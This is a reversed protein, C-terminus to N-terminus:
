CVEGPFLERIIRLRQVQKLEQMIHSRQDPSVHYLDMVVSELEFDLETDVPPAEKLLRRVRQVIGEHLERQRGDEFDIEKIPLRQIIRQTVYPFSQWEVIGMKKVLYYLMLRSNLVGLMYELDLEKWREPRDARLKWAYVVQPFYTVASDITAYIGLSTKRVLLKKGEYFSAPKYNIGERSTDIVKDKNLYYRNVDSGIVFPRGTETRRNKSVITARQAAEEVEYEHGCHACQKSAYGGGKKQRPLSDWKFCSPCQMVDGAGTLEVGRGTETVQDWLLCDTEWSQIMEMEDQRLYIDFEHHRNEEFRRQPVHHMREQEFGTIGESTTRQALKRRDEKRLTMCRVTHRPGPKENKFILIASAAFVSEFLGEGCRILTDLSFNTVLFERLGDHEPLFISAPVIFGWTGGPKLLKKALELFLEYSDYQGQALTYFGCNELFPKPFLYDSGWPPNGAVVDFGGEKLIGPFGEEWDFPEYEEWGDGILESLDEQRGFVLSNGQRVNEGLILPLKEGRRLVKLACNVGAIETAQPDVDVGYLNQTLIRKRYDQILFRYRDLGAGQARSQVAQNFREYYVVFLDFAKILFSGSGCAPDLVRVQSFEEMRSAAGKFDGDRLKPEVRAWIRELVPRLTRQLIYEVVYVPTYYSGGHQRRELVEELHVEPGTQRIIHGIYDEYIAGLIDADIVDFNYKYLARIIKVLTQNRLPISDCPHQEFIRSNYIQDFERFKQRLETILPRVEPDIVTNGWYDVMRALSEAQIIGRDEAVRMVVLRDIIRQVSERLTQVDLGDASTIDRILLNRAEFLDKLVEINIDARTRRRRLQELRGAQVAPKSLHWLREFVEDELFQDCSYSFILGDEPRQVHSFYLRLEKYNTLVVFDVRMQWAYNIAQEPYTVRKGLMARYGDLNEGMAKLEYFVIPAQDPSTRLAFDVRGTLTRQEPQVQDLGEVDWGFARLLPVIFRIKVSEEDQDLGREQADRYKEYLGGLLSKAGQKLEAESPTDQPSM